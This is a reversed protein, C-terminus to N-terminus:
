RVEEWRISGVFSGFREREAAVAAPEGALKLFWTEGGRPVLVVVMAQAQGTLELLQASVGGVVLPQFLDPQLEALAPLGVQGRWRNVNPLAGGVDGPFKTVSVDCAGAAFSALRMPSPPQAQWEPPAEYRFGGAAPAPPSATPSPGEPPAQPGPQPLPAPPASGAFTLSCLLQHFAKVHTAVQDGAGQIKVFWMEGQGPVMAVILRQKGEPGVLDVVSVPLATGDVKSVLGPVEDERVPGLGVQSRWRNVNRLAGGVDGPFRTIAVETPADPGAILTAWRMQRPEPDTRWGPPLEWALSGAGASAHPDPAAPAEDPHAHEGPGHDHGAHPDVASKPVDYVRIAHPDDCGALIAALLLPPLSQRMPSLM